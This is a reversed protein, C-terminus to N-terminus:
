FDKLIDLSLKNLAFLQFIYNLMKTQYRLSANEASNAFDQIRIYVLNM